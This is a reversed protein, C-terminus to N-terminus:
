RPVHKARANFGLRRRRSLEHREHGASIFFLAAKVDDRADFQRRFKRRSIDFCRRRVEISFLAARRSIDILISFIARYCSGHRMMYFLYLFYANMFTFTTNGVIPM